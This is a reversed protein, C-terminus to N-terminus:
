WTLADGSARGAASLKKLLQAVRGAERPDEALDNVESPDEKLDFLQTRGIVPYHIIKWREDRWGRQVDRYAFYLEDRHRRGRGELLRVLSRGEIGAPAPVGALGCITPAIDHLYCLADVARVGQFAAGAIILPVGVSHQYLNQKGLLGHSGLALGNDGAFIVVTREALGTTNLEDLLRGVQTDLHTIMAYYDAIEHQVAARTRPAPVLKEDRVALEGNDFPHEPLFNGPVTMWAPDYRAHYEPPATRPDHPSTLAVYLAFPRKTDRARLMELATDTFLETANRAEERAPGPRGTADFDQVKVRFQDSMGGLFISRAGPFVRGCAEAGNHWKGTAFTQYGSRRLAEPWTEAGTLDHGVRFFSRGSLFMARSPICVAGSDSGAIHAGRFLVGANVLRDLNPTRLQRNLVGLADPRHDDSLIVVFNPRVAERPAALVSFAPLLLALGLCVLRHGPLKM